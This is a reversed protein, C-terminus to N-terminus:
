YAETTSLPCIIIYMKYVLNLSERLSDLLCITTSLCSTPDLSELGLAKQSTLFMFAELLFPGLGLPLGFLLDSTDIISKPFSMNHSLLRFLRIQLATIDICRSLLLDMM